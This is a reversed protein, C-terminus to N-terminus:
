ERYQAAKETGISYRGKYRAGGREKSARGGDSWDGEKEVERKINLISDTIVSVPM